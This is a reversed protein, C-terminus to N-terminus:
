FFNNEQGRRVVPNFFYFGLWGPCPDVNCEETEMSEGECGAGGNSPPPMSCSRSRVTVGGSCSANCVSWPSWSSWGGDCINDTCNVSSGDCTSILSLLLSVIECHLFIFSKDCLLMTSDNCFCQVVFIEFFLM